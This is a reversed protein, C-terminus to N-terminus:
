SFSINVTVAVTQGTSVSIAPSVTASTFQGGGGINGGSGGVCPGPAQCTYFSSSVTDISGTQAATASGSLTIGNTANVASLNPFTSSSAALGTTTSVINCPLPGPTATKSEGLVTGYCPPSGASAGLQVGWGAMLYQGLLVYALSGGAGVALANEFERHTVVSGDANRVEITWHGHVKVGQHSSDEKTQPAVRKTVSRPHGSIGPDQSAWAGQAFLLAWALLMREVGRVWQKWENGHM